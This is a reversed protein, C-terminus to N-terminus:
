NVWDESILAPIQPCGKQVKNYEFERYLCSFSWIAQFPAFCSWTALLDTDVHTKIIHM